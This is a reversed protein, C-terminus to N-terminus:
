PRYVIRNDGMQLVRAFVMVSRHLLIHQTNSINYHGSSDM